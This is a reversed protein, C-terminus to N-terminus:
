AGVQHPILLMRDSRSSFTEIDTYVATEAGAAAKSKKYGQILLGAYWRVEPSKTNVKTDKQMNHKLSSISLVRSLM